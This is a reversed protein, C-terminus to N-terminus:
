RKVCFDFPAYAPAMENTSSGLSFTITAMIQITKATTIVTTIHQRLDRSENADFTTSTEATNTADFQPTTKIGKRINM